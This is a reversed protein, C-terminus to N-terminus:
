RVARHHAALRHRLRRNKGQSKGNCVARLKPKKTVRYGNHGTFSVKSRYTKGCINRSNQILGTRGGYLSVVVRSFPADPIGAFTSRLAGNVTDTKGAAELKIPQAAPGRLDLVLDPLPNSSSRLYINGTLPQDLLPTQV